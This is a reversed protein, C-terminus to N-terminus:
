RGEIGEGLLCTLKLEKYMEYRFISTTMLLGRGGFPLIRDNCLGLM